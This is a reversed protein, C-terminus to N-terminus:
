WAAAGRTPSPSASCAARPTSRPAARSARAAAAFSLRIRADIRGGGSSTWAPGAAAVIGFAALPGDAGRGVAFAFAGVAPAAAEPWDPQPGTEARLLAVDTSPDRGALEVPM